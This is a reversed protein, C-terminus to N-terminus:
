FQARCSLGALVEREPNPMELRVGFTGSAADVVHDVVTVTAEYTRAIPDEIVVQASDGVSIRGLLTAPAYIEVNLPDIQAVKLIQPPDAYEGERLIVEVIVGDVPSRITRVSLATQSRRLDLEALHMNEKAQTSNTEAILVASEVEDLEESSLVGEDHLKKTRALRRREFALRAESGDLEATAEARSRALSVATKEVSSELEALVQGRKVFDGRQVLVSGVVGIAPAAVVVSSKPEILCNLDIKEPPAAYSSSAIMVGM